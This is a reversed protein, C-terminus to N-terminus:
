KAQNPSEKSKEVYFTFRNKATHVRFLENLAMQYKSTDGDKTGNEPNLFHKICREMKTSQPLMNVPNTVINKKYNMRALLFWIM